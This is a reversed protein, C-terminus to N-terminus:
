RAGGQVPTDDIALPARPGIDGFPRPLARRLDAAIAPDQDTIFEVGNRQAYDALSLARRLLERAAPTLCRGGPAYQQETSVLGRGVAFPSEVDTQALAYGARLALAPANETPPLGVMGTGIQRVDAQAASLLEAAAVGARKADARRWIILFRGDGMAGVVGDGGARVRLGAGVRQLLTDCEPWLAREELARIGAVVIALAAVCEQNVQAERVIRDAAVFFETRPLVGESADSREAFALAQMAGVTRWVLEIQARVAIYQPPTTRLPRPWGSVRVIAATRGHARIPLLWTGGAGGPLGSSTPDYTVEGTAVARGTMGTRASVLSNVEVGGIDLPLLHEGDDSVNLLQVTGAGMRQQLGQSVTREFEAWSPVRGARRYSIDRELFERWDDLLDTGMVTSRGSGGAPAAPAFDPGRWWALLAGIATSYGIITLVHRRTEPGGTAVILILVGAAAAFLCQRAHSTM